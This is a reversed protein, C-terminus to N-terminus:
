NSMAKIEPLVERIINELPTITHVDPMNFIVHQIGLHNLRRFEAIVDATSMGSTLTTLATKEIDDYNRGVAECHQKLVDLKHRMAADDPSVFLNCADGYKAVLRLTKKEGMGGIMIPPHPQSLPLPRNLTEALEFHQGQYPKVDGSWMQRLIQLAEELQEFRDKLPPFPVGLARAEREYWAAGIGLYARGGSVVDLTTVTKALIGPYRYVVGTILTGLKVHETMGAFFGLTTYSELMANEPAGWEGGMQFFHDMVWLSDFGASDILQAITKLTPRIAAAGGPYTFNPIQLGVRM